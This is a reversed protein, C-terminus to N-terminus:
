DCCCEMEISASPLVVVMDAGSLGLMVAASPLIVNAGVNPLSLNFMAGVLTLRIDSLCVRGQAVPASVGGFYGATAIDKASWFYGRTAIRKANM